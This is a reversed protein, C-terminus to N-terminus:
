LFRMLTLEFSRVAAIMSAQVISERLTLDVSAEAMDLDEVESRRIESEAKVQNLLDSRQEVFYIREGVEARLSNLMRFSDQIETVASKLLEKINGEKRFSLIDILNKLTNLVGPKGESPDGLFEIGPTTIEVVADKIELSLSSTDGHYEPVGDGGFEKFIGMTDDKISFTFGPTATIIRLKGDLSVSALVQGGGETNIRNALDGIRDSSFYRIKRTFIVNGDADRVELTFNGEVVGFLESFTKTTDVGNEAEWSEQNTIERDEYPKVYFRGTSIIRTGGFLFRGRVSTNALEVAEKFLEEVAKRLSAFEESTQADIGREAHLQAKSLLDSIKALVEEKAKLFYLAEESDSIDRALKSIRVEIGRALSYESPSDSPRLLRLGASVRKQLEFLNFQNNVIEERRTEFLFRTPVRM